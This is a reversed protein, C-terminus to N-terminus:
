DDDGEKDGPVSVKVYAAIPKEEMAANYIKLNGGKAVFKKPNFKKRTGAVIKCRYGDLALAEEGADAMIDEVKGKITDMKEKLADAQTKLAHYQRFEKRLRTTLEPKLEVVHEVTHATVQALRPM